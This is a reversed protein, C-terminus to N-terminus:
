FLSSIKEGGSGRMVIEIGRALKRQMCDRTVRPAGCQAVIGSPEGESPCVHWGSICREQDDQWWVCAKRGGRWDQTSLWGGRWKPQMRKSRGAVRTADEKVVRGSLDYGEQGDQWRAM